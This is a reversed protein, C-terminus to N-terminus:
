GRTGGEGRWSCWAMSFAYQLKDGEPGENMGEPVLCGERRKRNHEGLGILKEEGTVQIFILVETFSSPISHGNRPM